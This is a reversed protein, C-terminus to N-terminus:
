ILFKHISTKDPHFQRALYCYGKKMDDEILYDNFGPVLYHLEDGEAEQYYKFVQQIFLENQELTFVTRSPTRVERINTGPQTRPPSEPNAGARAKKRTFIIEM